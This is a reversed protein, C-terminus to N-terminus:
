KNKNPPYFLGLKEVEERLKGIVVGPQVSATLNEQNIEIIKNMKSFNMVIGGQKTICAGVLNTGAARPTIPIENDYAIKVVQQVQEVTEVFVVVDPLNKVNQKNTADLAYVYREELDTLVNQPTVIQKLKEIIKKM